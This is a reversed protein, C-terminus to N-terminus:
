SGGTFGKKEIVENKGPSEGCFTITAGPIITPPCQVKFPEGAESSSFKPKYSTKPIAIEAM